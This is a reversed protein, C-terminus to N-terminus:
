CLRHRIRALTNLLGEDTNISQSLLDSPADSSGAIERWSYLVAYPDSLELFAQVDLATYLSLQGNVARTLELETLYLNELARSGGEKSALFQERMLEASFSLNSIEEFLAHIVENRDDVSLHHSLDKMMVHVKRDFVKVTGSLPLTRSYRRLQDTIQYAVFIWNRPNDLSGVRSSHGIRDMLQDSLDRRNESGHEMLTLISQRLDASSKNAAQLLASWEEDTVAHSPPEMAFYLRWHWPSSLRKQARFEQLEDSSVQHTWAKTTESSPILYSQTVGALIKDLNHLDMSSGDNSGTRTQWGLGNLIRSLADSEERQGSIMGGIAIADLSQLYRTIWSYLDAKSSGAKEKVMQLWILDLLDVRSKLDNWIVHVAFLIRKVDRPTKLLRGAWVDLVAPARETEYKVEKPFLEEIEHRLWQRLRFPELPPVKFSFQLIKEMYSYGDSVQRNREIADALTNRDYALLYMVGPFDAVAKVLRLVEIADHPDLRDLDDILVLIKFRSHSDAFQKLRRNLAQKRKQLKSKAPETLHRIANSGSALAASALSPDLLTVANSVIAVNRGFKHLDMRLLEIKFRKPWNRPNCVPYAKGAANNLARGLLGFLASIMATRNTILWPSFSVVTLGVGPGTQQQDRTEIEGQLLNIISSKGSGWPGDLGLVLSSSTPHAYIANALANSLQSFNLQDGRANTIPEDLLHSHPASTQNENAM